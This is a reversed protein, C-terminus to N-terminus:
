IQTINVHLRKTEIQDQTEDCKRKQGIVDDQTIAYGAIEPMKEKNSKKPIHMIDKICREFKDRSLPKTFMDAKMDTTPIYVPQVIQKQVLERVYHYKIDIHKTRKHFCLDKSIVISAQNDQYVLTPGKQEEDLEKLLPRLYVVEQCAETMAVYEAEATSLAVVQQKKSRWSIPGGALTILYGSTSKRDDHDGAWDSDSYCEMMLEGQCRAYQIYADKTGKLYRPIRKAAMWHEKNHTDMYRSVQGTAYAIDPRTWGSAYLLGGILEKYPVEKFKLGDAASLRKMEAPTRINHADQMKFPEVMKNIYREQSINIGDNTVDVKVGLFWHIQGMNTVEFQEQLQKVIKPGMEQKDSIILIDDVYIALATLGKSKDKTFLCPDAKSQTCGHDVMWRTLLQNWNRGAQKLGYIAKILKCGQNGGRDPANEMVLHLGEPIELYIDEDVTSNLYAQKINLQTVYYERAAAVALLTRTTTARVVPSFTKNYDEGYV